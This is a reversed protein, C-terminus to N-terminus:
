HYQTTLCVETLDGASEVAAHVIVDNNAVIRQRQQMRSCPVSMPRGVEVSLSHATSEGVRSETARNDSDCLDGSERAWTM